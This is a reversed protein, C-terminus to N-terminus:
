AKNERWSVVEFESPKVGLRKGNEAIVTVAGYRNSECKYEGAHAITTHWIPYDGRVPGALRVRAPVWMPARQERAARLYELEKAQDVLLAAAEKGYDGGNHLKDALREARDVAGRERTLGFQDPLELSLPQGPTSNAATTNTM